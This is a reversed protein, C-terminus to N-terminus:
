GFSGGLRGLPSGGKLLPCSSSGCASHSSIFALGGKTALTTPYTFPQPIVPTQFFCFYSRELQFSACTM